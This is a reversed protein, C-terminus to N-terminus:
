SGDSIRSTMLNQTTLTGPVWESREMLVGGMRDLGAETRAQGTKCVVKGGNM